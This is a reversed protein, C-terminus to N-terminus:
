RAPQYVSGAEGAKRLAAIWQQGDLLKTTHASRIAGGAGVAMALAAAAVDDPAEYVALIDYNGFSYGGALLKIGARELLPKVVEFRDKPAKIQAAISEATYAAQYMYLPM